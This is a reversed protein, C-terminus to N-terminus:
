AEPKAAAKQRELAACIKDAAENIKEILVAIGLLAALTIFAAGAAPHVTHYIMQGGFVLVAFLVYTHSNM